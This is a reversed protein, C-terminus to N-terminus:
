EKPPTGEPTGQERTFGLAVAGTTVAVVVAVIGMTRRM